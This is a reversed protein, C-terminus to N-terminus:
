LLDGAQGVKGSSGHERTMSLLETIELVHAFLLVNIDAAHVVFCNQLKVIRLKKALSWKREHELM